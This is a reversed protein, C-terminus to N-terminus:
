GAGGSRIPDLQILERIREAPVTPGKGVGPCFTVIEENWVKPNLNEPWFPWTRCQAPRAEYVGCRKGELFPCAEEFGRLHWWGNTRECYRRTFAATRLQFFGALRRRDELTLYVYGYAGRSVCCQGTEQCQFRIGDAWFPQTPPM